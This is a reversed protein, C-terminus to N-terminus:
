KRDFAYLLLDVMLMTIGIGFIVVCTLLKITNFVVFDIM